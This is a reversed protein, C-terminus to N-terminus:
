QFTKFILWFKPFYTHMGLNIWIYAQTIWFEYPFHFVEFATLNQGFLDDHDKLSFAFRLDENQMWPPLTCMNLGFKTLIVQSAIKPTLSDWEELYFTVNLFVIYIVASGRNENTPIPAHCPALAGRKSFNNFLFPWWNLFLISQKRKYYGWWM